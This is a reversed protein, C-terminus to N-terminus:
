SRTHSGSPSSQDDSDTTLSFGEAIIWECTTMNKAISWTGNTGAPSDASSLTLSCGGPVHEVQVLRRSVEINTPNPLSYLWGADAPVVALDNARPAVPAECAALAIVAVALRSRM